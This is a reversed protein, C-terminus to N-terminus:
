KLGHNVTYHALQEFVPLRRRLIEDPDHLLRRKLVHKKWSETEWRIYLFIGKDVLWRLSPSYDLTGGGLSVVCPAHWPITKLVKLEERRFGREGLELYIARRKQGRMKELLRDTDYFPLGTECAFKEGLTTKGSRPLGILILPLLGSLKKQHM